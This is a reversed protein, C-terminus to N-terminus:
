GANGHYREQNASYAREANASYAREAAIIM